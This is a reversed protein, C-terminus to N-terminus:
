TPAHRQDAAARLNGEAGARKVDKLLPVTVDATFTMDFEGAVFALIRTSRNDIIKWEIADLYPKGKKWYDPNRVLKISENRKFEVFKFPGTGIPKTRMDKDLRPLSLGALLRLRAPGPVVAAARKLIFTAEYDGNVTVEELNHRGSAQAPEQPLGRRGQREAHELHVARGQRHVAQRRAVQRGPAAQLHAQDQTADWAWSEALDPVITDLSNLPKTQDFLVLNNFVAWSRSCRRSPRRRTSRRARRTTAIYIRLTGGQKQALAPLALSAAAFAFAVVFALKSRM